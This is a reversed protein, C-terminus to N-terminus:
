TQTAEVSATANCDKSSGRARGDDEADVLAHPLIKASFCSVMASYIVFANPLLMEGVAVFTSRDFMPLDRLQQGEILM